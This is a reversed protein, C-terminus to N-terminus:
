QYQWGRFLSRNKQIMGDKGNDISLKQAGGSINLTLYSKLWALKLNM